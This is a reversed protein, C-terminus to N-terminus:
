DDGFSMQMAGNRFCLLHADFIAIRYFDLYRALSSQYKFIYGDSGSIVIRKIEM